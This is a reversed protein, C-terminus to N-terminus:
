TLVGYHCLVSCTALLHNQDIAGMNTNILFIIGCASLALMGLLRGLNELIQAM